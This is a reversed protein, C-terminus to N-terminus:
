LTKSSGTAPLTFLSRVQPLAPFEFANRRNTELLSSEADAFLGSSKSRFLAMALSKDLDRQLDAVNMSSVIRAILPSQEKTISIRNPSSDPSIWEGSYRIPPSIRGELPPWRNTKERVFIFSRGDRMVERSSQTYS